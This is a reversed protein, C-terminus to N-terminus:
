SHVLQIKAHSDTHIVTALSKWGESTAQMEFFHDWQADGHSDFKVVSNDSSIYSYRSAFNRLDSMVGQGAAM